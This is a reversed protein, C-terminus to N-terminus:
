FDFLFDCFDRLGRIRCLPKNHLSYISIISRQSADIAGSFSSLKKDDWTQNEAGGPNRGGTTPFFWM